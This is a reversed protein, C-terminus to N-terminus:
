WAMNIIACPFCFLANSNGNYFYLTLFVCVCVCVCVCICWVGLHVGELEASHRGLRWYEISAGALSFFICVWGM